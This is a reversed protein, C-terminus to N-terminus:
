FRRLRAGTRPAGIVARAAVLGWFGPAMGALISGMMVVVLGAVYFERRGYVDSLKGVIPVSVASTLVASSAIWDYHEIGGFDAVIPPMAPSVVTQSTVAVLMGLALRVFVLNRRGGAVGV